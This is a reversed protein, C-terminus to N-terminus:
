AGFLCSGAQVRTYFITTKQDDSVESITAINGGVNTDPIMSGSCEYKTICSGFDPWKEISVLKQSMEPLRSEYGDNIMVMGASVAVPVSLAIAGVYARWRGSLIRHGRFRIEVWQWSAYSLLATATWCLTLQALTLEEGFYFRAYLLIPWHWLYLSYSMKGILLVPQCSLLSTLLGTQAQTINYVLLITALVPLLAASGPFLTSKDFVVFSVGLLLLGIVTLLVNEKGRLAGKMYAVGLLGGAILEWARPPFMFFTFKADHPTLVLNLVLSAAGLILLTALVKGTLRFALWLVAPFVLYFQWEVALSWTHLLIQQEAAADFYGLNQYFFANSLFFLSALATEALRELEVPLLIAPAVLLCVGVMVLYGPFLRRVRGAIFNIYSFKGAELSGFVMQTILFGSLVFFVDVGVFGGSLWDTRSHFIIVALVALARLGDLQPLYTLKKPM